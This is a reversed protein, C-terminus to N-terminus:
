GIVDVFDEMYFGHWCLLDHCEEDSLSDIGDHAARMALYILRRIDKLYEMAEQQRQVITEPPGAFLM